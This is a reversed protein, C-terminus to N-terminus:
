TSVQYTYPLFFSATYRDGMKPGASTDGGELSIKVRVPATMPISARGANGGSIYGFLRQAPHANYSSQDPVPATPTTECCCCLAALPSSCLPQM